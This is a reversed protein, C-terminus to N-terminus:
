FSRKGNKVELKEIKKLFKKLIRKKKYFRSYMGISLMIEPNYFSDEVVVVTGEKFEYLEYKM